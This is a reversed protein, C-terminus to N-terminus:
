MLCRMYLAVEGLEPFMVLRGLVYFFVGCLSSFFSVAFSYTVFSPALCYRLFLVLCFSSLCDGSLSNLIIIMFIIVSSHLLFSSCLSFKLLSNSFILFLLWLQLICYSFHFVPFLLLNCSGPMGFPKWIPWSLNKAQKQSFWQILFTM